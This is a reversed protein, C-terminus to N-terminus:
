KKESKGKKLYKVGEVFGEEFNSIWGNGFLGNFANHSTYTRSFSLGPKGPLFIDREGWVFHGSKTYVPSGRRSPCVPVGKKTMKGVGKPERNDLGEGNRDNPNDPIDVVVYDENNSWQNNYALLGEAGGMLILAYVAIRWRKSIRKM